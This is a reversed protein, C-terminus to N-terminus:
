SGGEINKVRDWGGGVGSGGTVADGESESPSLDELEDTAAAEAESTDGANQDQREESM